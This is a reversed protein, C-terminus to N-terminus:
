GRWVAALVASVVIFLMSLRLTVAWDDAVAAAEDMEALHDLDDLACVACRHPRGAGSAM